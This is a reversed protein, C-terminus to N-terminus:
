PQNANRNGERQLECDVPPLAGGSRGGQPFLLFCIVVRAHPILQRPARGEADM